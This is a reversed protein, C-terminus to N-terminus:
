ADAEELPRLLGDLQMLDQFVTKVGLTEIEARQSTSLRVFDKQTTILKAGVDSALKKLGLIDSESYVHHDGFAHQSVIDFGMRELSNFFNQPRGIGAFAVFRGSNGMPATVPDFSVRLVPGSFGELDVSGDGVLVVADARALGQALPERLPGAPLVQGNGFGAESDVVVLSLDKKVSFNQHGDDMIIVRAPEAEAFKAGARRDRAVIATQASALLLPEDGVDSASHMAADVLLPGRERGGYGRSLFTVQQGRERLFEAIAMAVPTKGSGGATLNGVCIVKCRSRYPAAHKAKWAVSAGYFLGAPALFAAMMRSVTDSSYWFRPARM